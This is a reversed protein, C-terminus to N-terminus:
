ESLSLGQREFKSYLAFVTTIEGDNCHINNELLFSRLSLPTVTGSSSCSLRKHVLELVFKSQNALVSKISALQAHGMGVTVLIEAILKKTGSSLM